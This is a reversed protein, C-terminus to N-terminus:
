DPLAQPLIGAEFSQLSSAAIYDRPVRLVRRVQVGDLSPPTAQLFQKFCFGRCLKLRAALKQFAEPSGDSPEVCPLPGTPSGQTTTLLTTGPCNKFEGARLALVSPDNNKKVTGVGNGSKDKKHRPVTNETKTKSDATAGQTTSARHAVLVLVPLPCSQLCRAGAFSLNPFPMAGAPTQSSARCSKTGSRQRGARSGSPLEQGRRDHPAIRETFCRTVGPYRASPQVFGTNGSRHRM